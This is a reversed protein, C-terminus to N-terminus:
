DWTGVTVIIVLNHPPNVSSQAVAQQGTPDGLVLNVAKKARPESPHMNRWKRVRERNSARMAEQNREDIVKQRSSAEAKLQDHRAKNAAVMEEYQEPNDKRTVIFAAIGSQFKNRSVLAHPEPTQRFHSATCTTKRPVAEGRGPLEDSSGDSDFYDSSHHSRSSTEADTETHVAESSTDDNDSMM